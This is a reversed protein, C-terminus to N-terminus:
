GGFVRRGAYLVLVLAVAAFGALTLAAATRGRLGSTMRAVILGAFTLWILASVIYDVRLVVPGPRQALWVLGTILALTFLVFGVRLLRHALADLTTIAPGKRLVSPLRRGKLASEELLYIAAVAAALAFCAVGLAVLVLHLEGMLRMSGAALRQPVRQLTLGSGIALMLVLPAVVAGLAGERYRRPGAVFALGVVLASLSLVGSTDALPHSGVLCRTGITGVHALIGAALLLLGARAVRPEHWFLHLVHALSAVGYLALMAPPFVASM